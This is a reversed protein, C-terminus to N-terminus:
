IVIKVVLALASLSKCMERVREGQFVLLSLLDLLLARTVQVSAGKTIFKSGSCIKIKNLLGKEKERVM